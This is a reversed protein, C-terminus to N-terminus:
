RQTVDRVGALAEELEGLAHQDGKKRAVDIGDNLWTRAEDVRGAKMLMTGCMLFMPVYTPDIARLSGFTALAEDHRGLGAYELALAYWHFSDKSGERTLKELMLLRKSV